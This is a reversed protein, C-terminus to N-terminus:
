CSGPTKTGLVSYALGACYESYASPNWVAGQPPLFYPPWVTQLSNDYQYNKAYGTVVNVGSVTGVPGRFNQAISGFVTLTGYTGNSSWNQVYFSDNVALIAADITMNNVEAVEVSNNAILGLADKTDTDTTTNINASPYTLNAPIVITSSSVLDLAGSMTGSVTIQGNVFILGSKLSSLPFSTGVPCTNTNGNIRTTTVGSGSVTINTNGASPSTLAVTVGSPANYYCGYEQAPTADAQTTPLPENSVKVPTVAFSPADACGLNAPDTTTIVNSPAYINGSSVESEFTPSGCIYFTDNSFIPGNLVDESDFVIMCSGPPGYGSSNTSPQDYHWACNSVSSDIAPDITEYNSWYVYDLSSVPRITYDFTRVQATTGSGAKGSVELSILGGAQVAPSYAYYELPTTSAQEWSTFAPNSPDPNAQTYSTYSADADLHQMYDNLGAQAAEYAADWNLNRTTEPLQNVTTTAVALPIAMLLAVAILV